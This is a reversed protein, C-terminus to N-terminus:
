WIQAKDGTVVPERSKNTYVRRLIMGAASLGLRSGNFGGCAIGVGSGGFVAAEHAGDRM